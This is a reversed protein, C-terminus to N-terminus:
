SLYFSPKGQSFAHNLDTILTQIVSVDAQPQM